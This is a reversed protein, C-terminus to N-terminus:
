LCARRLAGEADVGIQQVGRALAFDKLVRSFFGRFEDVLAGDTGFVRGIVGGDYRNVEFM